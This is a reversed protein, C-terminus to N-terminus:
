NVSLTTPCEVTTNGALIEITYVGGGVVTGTPLGATNGDTAKGDWFVTKLLNSSVNANNLIAVTQESSNKILIEVDSMHKLQFSIQAKNAGPSFAAPSVTFKSVVPDSYLKITIASSKATGAFNTATIIIKYQTGNTSVPVSDGEGLLATNGAIAKGDWSFSVTGSSQNALSFSAVSKGSTNYITATVMAPISTAVKATIQLKNTGGPTFGYKAAPITAKSKISPKPPLPRTVKLTYTKTVSGDGSQVTVHFVNTGYVLTEPGLGTVTAQKDQKGANISIDTVTYPVKVTYSTKSSKFSPHLAYSKSGAKVTLSSLNANDAPIFKAVHLYSNDSATNYSVYALYPINNYFQLDMCSDNAYQPDVALCPGYLSPVGMIDWTSGNYKRVTILNNYDPNRFACYPVGNYVIMDGIFSDHDIDEAAAIINWTGNQLSYIENAGGVCIAGNSVSLFRADYSDGLNISDGITEWSSGNFKAVFLTRTPQDIEYAEYLTGDTDVTLTSFVANEPSAFISGLQLWVKGNFVKVMVKNSNDTSIYGFCPMGKYTCLSAGNGADSFSYREVFQWQGSKYRFVSPGDFGLYPVGGIGQISMYHTVWPGILDTIQPLGKWSSGNFHFVRVTGSIAVYPQGGIFTLAPSAPHNAITNGVDQWTGSIREVTLMYTKTDTRDSSSTVVIKITNVGPALAIPSSAVGSTVDISDNIKITFSPDTATATVSISDISYDVAAMYQTTDSYFVPNLSGASIQLGSLTASDKDALAINQFILILSVSVVFVFLWKRLGSKNLTRAMYTRGKM